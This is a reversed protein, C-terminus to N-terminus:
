QGSWESALLEAADKASSRSSVDAHAYRFATVSVSANEVRIDPSQSAYYRWHREAIKEVRLDIGNVRAYLAGDATKQWSIM